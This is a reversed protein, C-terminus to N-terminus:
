KNQGKWCNKTHIMPTVAVNNQNDIVLYECDHKTDKVIYANNGDEFGDHRIKLRDKKDAETVSVGILLIIIATQVIFLYKFLKGKM